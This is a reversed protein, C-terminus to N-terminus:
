APTAITRIVALVLALPKIRLPTRLLLHQLAHQASTHITTAHCGNYASVHAELFISALQLVNAISTALLVFVCESLMGICM